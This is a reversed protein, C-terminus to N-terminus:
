ASSPMRSLTADRPSPSTYLLCTLVYGSVYVSDLKSKTNNQIAQKGFFDAGRIAANGGMSHGTAGIKDIDVFNFAGSHVYEVLAFM